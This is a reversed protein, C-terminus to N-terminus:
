SYFSKACTKELKRLLNRFPQRRLFVQKSLTPIQRYRRRGRVWARENTSTVTAGFADPAKLCWVNSSPRSRKVVAMYVQRTGTCVGADGFNALVTSIPDNPFEFPYSCVLVNVLRPTPAAPRLVYCKVEQCHDRGAGM